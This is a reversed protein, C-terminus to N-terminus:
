HSSSLQIHVFLAVVSDSIGKGPYAYSM